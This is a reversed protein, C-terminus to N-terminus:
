QNDLYQKAAFYDGLRYAKQFANGDQYFEKSCEAMIEKAEPTKMKNIQNKASLYSGTNIIGMTGLAVIPIGVKLTTKLENWLSKKELNKKM